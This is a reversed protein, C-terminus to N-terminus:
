QKGEGLWLSNLILRELEVSLNVEWTKSIEAYLM